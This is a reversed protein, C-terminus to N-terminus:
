EHRGGTVEQDRTCNKGCNVTYQTSGSCNTFYVSRGSDGFRYVSCGDVTFLKSVKIDRGATVTSEPERECGTLAICVVLLILKKM